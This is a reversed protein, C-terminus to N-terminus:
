RERAAEYGAVAMSELLELLRAGADISVRYEDGWRRESRVDWESESLGLARAAARLRAQFAEDEIRQQNAREAREKQAAKEAAVQAEFDEWTSWIERGAVRRELGDEGVVLMLTGTGPQDDGERAILGNRGRYQYAVGVAKLTVREAYWPMRGRPRYRVLAVERGVVKALSKKDM